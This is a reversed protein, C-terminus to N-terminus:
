RIREANPAVGAVDTGHGSRLREGLFRSIDKLRRAPEAVFYEMLIMDAIRPELEDSLWFEVSLGPDTTIYELFRALEKEDDKSEIFDVDSRNAVAWKDLIINHQKMESKSLRSRIEIDKSGGLGHIPVMITEKTRGILFDRTSMADIAAQMQELKKRQELEAPTIDESRLEKFEDATMENM